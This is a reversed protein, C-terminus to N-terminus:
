DPGTRLYQREIGGFLKRFDITLIGNSGFSTDATGSATMEAVLDQSYSGVKRSGAFLFEGQATRAFSSITDGTALTLSATGTGNFTGDLVGTSDLKTVSVITPGSATSVSSLYVDGSSDVALGPSTQSTAYGALYVGNTAFGQNYTGDDNLRAVFPENGSSIEVYGGVLFQNGALPIIKQIIAEDATSGDPTLAVIGGSGFNTDLTGTATYRVIEGLNAYSTGAMSGVGGALINGSSEVAVTSFRGFNGASPTLTQGPRTTGFAPDLSGDSNLRAIAFVSPTSPTTNTALATGVVVVKGNSQVATATAADSVSGFDIAAVGNVGFSTDATGDANLRAVLANSEVGSQKGTLLLKGDPQVSSQGIGQIWVAGSTAIRTLGVSGTGDGFTSDISGDSNIRELLIDRSDNYTQEVTASYVIQNNAEISFLGPFNFVASPSISVSLEGSKNFTTDLTGSGNLRILTSTSLGSASNVNDQFVYRDLSDIGIASITESQTSNLDFQKVGTGAFSTDLVGASTLRGVFAASGYYASGATGSYGSIVAKGGDLQIARISSGTTTVGSIALTSASGNSFINVPSGTASLAFLAAQRNLSSTTLLDGAMELNGASTIVAAYADFRQNNTTPFTYKGATGFTSDLTGTATLAIVGTNSVIFAGGNSRTVVFQQVASSTALGSNVGPGAWNPDLSGNALFKQTLTQSVAIISNDAPNIAASSADFLAADIVTGNTGFSLDPTGSASLRTLRAFDNGGAYGYGTLVLKGDSTQLFSGSYDDAPGNYGLSTTGNSGFSSDLSSVSLLTRQELKEAWSHSKRRQSILGM